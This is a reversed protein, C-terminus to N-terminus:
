PEDMWFSSIDNFPSQLEAVDMSKGNPKPERIKVAPSISNKRFALLTVTKKRKEFPEFFSKDFYPHSSSSFTKTLKTLPIPLDSNTRRLREHSELKYKWSSSNLDPSFTDYKAKPHNMQSSLPEQKQFDKIDSIPKPETTSQSESSIPLILMHASILVIFYNMIIICQFM